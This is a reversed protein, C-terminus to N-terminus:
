KKRSAANERLIKAMASAIRKGIVLMSAADFHYFSTMYQNEGGTGGTKVLAANPDNEVFTNQEEIIEAGMETLWHGLEVIIVPIDTPSAFKTSTDFIEQRVDAVFQTLDDSYDRVKSEDDFVNNEGQFWVFAESSGNAGKIADVLAYWYNDPGDKNEKMWQRNLVTGGVAVKAISIAQGKLPSNLKPFVHGFMFEPGYQTGGAGCATSSLPKECDLQQIGSPMTFSCTTTPHDNFMKGKKLHKRMAYIFRAENRSSYDTAEEGNMLHKRLRNKIIKVTSM